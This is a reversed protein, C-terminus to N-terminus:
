KLQQFKNPRERVVVNRYGKTKDGITAMEAKEVNSYETLVRFFDNKAATQNPQRSQRGSGRNAVVM